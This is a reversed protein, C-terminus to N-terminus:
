STKRAKSQIWRSFADGGAIALLVMHTILLWETDHPLMWHLPLLLVLMIFFSVSHGLSTWVSEKEHKERREKVDALEAERSVVQDFPDQATKDAM